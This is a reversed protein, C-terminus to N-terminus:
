NELEQWEFYGSDFDRNIDIEETLDFFGKPINKVLSYDTILKEDWWVQGLPCLSNLYFLAQEHVTLQARLIKVYEKKKGIEIEQDDVYKVIQYLHRFYHGLRSFHGGFPRFKFNRNKKVIDQNTSSSLVIILQDVFERPYQHILTERLSRRSNPGVGIYFAYYAISILTKQDFSENMEEAVKKVFIHAERFERIMTVFVRRGMKKDLEMENVNDRQFRILEFFRTEFKQLNDSTKQTKLTNTLILVSALAFLTGVYGGVFDGFQGASEREISGERFASSFLIIHMVVLGVALVITEFQFNKYFFKIKKM